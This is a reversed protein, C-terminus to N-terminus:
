LASCCWGSWFIAWYIVFPSLFSNLIPYSQDLGLSHALALMGDSFAWGAMTWYNMSVVSLSPCMNPGKAGSSIWYGFCMLLNPTISFFNQTSHPLVVDAPVDINIIGIMCGLSIHHRLTMCLPICHLSNPLWSHAGHQGRYCHVCPLAQVGQPCVDGQLLMCCGPSPFQGNVSGNREADPWSWCSIGQLVNDLLM